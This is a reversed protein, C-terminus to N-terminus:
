GLALLERQNVCYDMEPQTLTRSAFGLVQERGDEKGKSLVAGLGVGPTNTYMPTLPDPYALMPKTKLLFKLQEFAAQCEESWYFEKGMLQILPHYITTFVPIVTHYYSCFRHFSCFM